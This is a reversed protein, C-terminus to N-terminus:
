PLRAQQHEAAIERESRFAPGHLMRGLVGALDDADHAQPVAPLEILDLEHGTPKQDPRPVM